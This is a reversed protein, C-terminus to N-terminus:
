LTRKKSNNEFVVLHSRRWNKIMVVHMSFCHMRGKVTTCGLETADADHWQMPIKPLKIKIFPWLTDNRNPENL